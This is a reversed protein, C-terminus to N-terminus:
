QVVTYEVANSLMSNFPPALGQDRGWWQCQVVSGIVGLEPIPQGGLLGRAFSNMDISLLGSCDQTPAPSGGASQGPTRRLPSNMCLFGGQFPAAIRGATSYLLLSPTNNRVQTCTIMLGHSASASGAGQAAISPTCGLSNTKATCYVASSDVLSYVYVAGAQIAVESSRPAGIFFSTGDTDVSFSFEAGPLFNPPVIKATQQWAGSARSFVYAAGGLWGPETTGVILTDGHIGTSAGFFDGGASDTPTLTTELLWSGGSNRYVFVRGPLLGGPPLVPDGIALRNGSLSATYGFVASPFNTLYAVQQWTNGVQEWVWAAGAGMHRISTGVVLAGQVDVAFGGLSENPGGNTPLLKAKRIWASGVRDFVYLSGSHVGQDGDGPASVVLRDMDLAVATGFGDGPAGDFAVVKGQLTWSSGTRIYIYVAGSGPGLGDALVAGVALTDGKIAAAVGFGDDISFPSSLKAERIWEGNIRRYIYAAGGVRGPGLTTSVLTDGDVCTTWGFRSDAVLDAPRLVADLRGILPDVVIPYVAQVDDIIISLSDAEQRLWAHLNEGRSDWAALGTYSAVPVGDLSSLLADRGTPGIQACVDGDLRLQLELEARPAAPESQVPDSELTFLQEIASGQGYFWQMAVGHDYRLFQDGREVTAIPASVSRDGRRLSELRLAFAGGKRGRPTTGSSYSVRLGAEDFQFGVESEPGSRQTVSGQLGESADGTSVYSAPTSASAIPVSAAPGVMAGACLALRRLLGAVSYKTPRGPHRIASRANSRLIRDWSALLQVQM